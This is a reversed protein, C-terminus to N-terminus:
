SARGYLWIAVTVMVVVVLGGLHGPRRATAPAAPEPAPAPPQSKEPSMVLMKGSATDIVAFSPIRGDRVPMTVFPLLLGSRENRWVSLLGQCEIERAPCDGELLPHYQRNILM